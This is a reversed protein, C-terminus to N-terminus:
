HIRVLVMGLFAAGLGADADEQAQGRQQHHAPFRKWTWAQSRPPHPAPQDPFSAGQLIGPVSGHWRSSQFATSTCTSPLPSPHLQLTPVGHSSGLDWLAWSCGLTSPILQSQARPAPAINRLSNLRRRKSTVARAGDLSLGAQGRRM